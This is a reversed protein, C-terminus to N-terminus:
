KVEFQVELSKCTTRKAKELGDQQDLLLVEWEYNPQRGKSSSIGLQLSALQVQGIPNEIEVKMQDSHYSKYDWSSLKDLNEPSWM